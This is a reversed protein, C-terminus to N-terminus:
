GERNTQTILVGAPTLFTDRELQDLSTVFEYKWMVQSQHLRIHQVASVPLLNCVYVENYRLSSLFFFLDVLRLSVLPIFLM